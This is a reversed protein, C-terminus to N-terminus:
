LAAGREAKREALLELGKRTLLGSYEFTDWDADTAHRVTVWNGAHPHHRLLWIDGNAFEHLAVFAGVTQSMGSESLNPIGHTSM